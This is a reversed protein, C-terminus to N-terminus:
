VMKRLEDLFRTDVLSQATMPRPIYGHLVAWDIGTQLDNLHISGDHEFSDRCAARVLQPDLDGAKAFDYLFAPTKGALFDNAGRLYARLFLAGTRVDGDLLRSGFVIFSYQFNPLVSSLRPGQALQLQRLM